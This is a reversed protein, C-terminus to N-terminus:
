YVVIQQHQQTGEALLIKLAYVGAPLAQPLRLVIKQQAAPVGYSAVVAGKKDVLLLVAAKPLAAHLQVTCEKNLVPNPYVIFHPADDQIFIRRVDSYAASGARQVTKVRYFSAGKYAVTDKYHYKSGAGSGKADVAIVDEFVNGGKSRQLVFGTTASESATSWNLLADNNVASATFSLLKVPLPYLQDTLVWWKYFGNAPVSAVRVTNAATHTFGGPQADDWRNVASNWQQAALYAEIINNGSAQHEADAYTFTLNTLAPKTTYGEASVQWFRDLAWASHDPVQGLMNTVGTPLYDSNKWGTSYTSFVISGSGIGAGKTLTVPLYTATYGFPVTYTATSTGVNWKIRNNEGESVIHGSSRTIAEAAPNDVVLYASNSITLTAGNFIIRSQSRSYLALLLAVTTVLINKAKM